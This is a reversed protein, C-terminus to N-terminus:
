GAPKDLHVLHRLPQFGLIISCASLAAEEKDQSAYSENVEGNVFRTFLFKDGDKRITWCEKESFDTEQKTSPNVYILPM